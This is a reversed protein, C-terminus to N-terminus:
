PTFWDKELPTGMHKLVYRDLHVQIKNLNDFQKQFTPVYTQYLKVRSKLFSEYQFYYINFKIFDPHYFTAPHENLGTNLITKFETLWLFFDNDTYDQPIPEGKKRKVFYFESFLNILPILSVTDDNIAM